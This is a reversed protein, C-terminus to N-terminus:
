KTLMKKNKDFLKLNQEIRCPCPLTTYAGLHSFSDYFAAVSLRKERDPNLLPKVCENFVTKEPEAVEAFWRDVERLAGSYGGNPTICSKHFDRIPTVSLVVLMEVFVCGLSFVDTAIGHRPLNASTWGFDNRRSVEPARYMMTTAAPSETSTAHGIEFQSSSSFDTFYIHSGCHVINSPKIDQHRVGHSHIYDLASSLCKFWTRIWGMEQSYIKVFFMLVDERWSSPAESIKEHIIDALWSFLNKLDADAVPYMLLSYYSTRPGAYEQYTGIIKVIHLHTLLQLSAIEQQIDKLRQRGPGHRQLQIRKRVFSPHDKVRVEEVVGMHGHGLPKLFEIPVLGSTEYEHHGLELGCRAAIQSVNM